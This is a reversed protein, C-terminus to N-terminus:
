HQLACSTKSVVSHNSLLHLLPLLWLLRCLILWSATVMARIAVSRQALRARTVLSCGRLAAHAAPKRRRSPPPTASRSRERRREARREVEGARRGCVSTQHENEGRWGDSNPMRSWCNAHAALRRRWHLKRRYHPLTNVSSCSTTCDRWRMALWRM